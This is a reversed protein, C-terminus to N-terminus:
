EQLEDLNELAANLQPEDAFELERRLQAQTEPRQAAFNMGLSLRERLGPTLSGEPLRQERRLLKQNFGLPGQFVAVYGRSVGLHRYSKHRPCFDNARSTLRVATPLSLDVNWGANEPFHSTIARADFKLLAKPAPGESLICRDGCIFVREMTVVTSPRVTEKKWFALTNVPKALFLFIIVLAVVILLPALVWWLRRNM